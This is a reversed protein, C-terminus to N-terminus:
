TSYRLSVYSPSGGGGGGGGRRLVHYFKKSVKWADQDRLDTVADQYISQLVQLENEQREALTEIEESQQKKSAM